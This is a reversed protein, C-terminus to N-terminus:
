TASVPQHAYAAVTVREGAQGVIETKAFGAKLLMERLCPVTPLWWNTVDGSYGPSFQMILGDGPIIHSEVLAMERTVTKLKELGLLPNTLHYFVGYFLVVDFQAPYGNAVLAEDIEYVSSSLFEIKSDLLKKALLLASQDTPIRGRRKIWHEYSLMRMEKEIGTYQDTAIDSALVFAAGRKEAEFSFSGNWCGIDLVTKGSLDKPMGFRPDGPTYSLDERTCFVKGDVYGLPIHHGWYMSKIEQLEESTLERM